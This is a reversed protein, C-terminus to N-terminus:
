SEAADPRRQYISFERDPDFFALGWHDLPTDAESVSFTRLLRYEAFTDPDDAKLAEAENPRLILFDPHLLQAIGYIGLLHPVPSQLAEVAAPSTLGPFDYLDANSYYSVYGASESAMTMGPQAVEGLYRGMPLRVQDEIDHQITRELPFSFPIHIAYALALATAPVAVLVTRAGALRQLGAAALIFIVAIAPPGYWENYGNGIVFVKYAVFGLAYLIAPRWSARKWTSVAGVVALILVAYAILKLLTSPLPTAVVLFRELFPALLTWDHGAATISDGIFGPWAGFDTIGPLQAGFFASKATITHPVPSGYYITTFVLWPGAVALMWLFARAAWDRSRIFIFVFAAVVWIVFDPRALIALGLAIGSKTRDEALVYYVGALLVAVAIETEMGAMGFFIQNQDLALYALALGTPWPGLELERCIRAAYVAAFVFAVLSVLKIFFFGGDAAILEGPLPVLVSLASTFGQVHGEGLHHVLGFGDVLNKDHKITILADDIRRDTYAWFFIRVALGSVLAGTLIPNARVWARARAAINTERPEM